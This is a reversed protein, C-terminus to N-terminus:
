SKDYISELFDKPFNNKVIEHQALLEQITEFQDNYRILIKKTGIVKKGFPQERETRYIALFHHNTFKGFDSSAETSIRLAGFGFDHSYVPYIEHSKESGIIKNNM